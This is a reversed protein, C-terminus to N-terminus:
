YNKGEQYGEMYWYENVYRLRNGESGDEYGEAYMRDNLGDIYGDKESDTLFFSDVLEEGEWAADYGKDYLYDNYCCGSLALLGVMTLALAFSRINM